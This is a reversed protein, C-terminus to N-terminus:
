WGEKPRSMLERDDWDGFKEIKDPHKQEQSTGNVDAYEIMEVDGVNGPDGGTHGVAWDPLDHGHGHHNPPMESMQSRVPVSAGFGSFTPPAVPPPPYVIERKVSEVLKGILGEKVYVLFYPNAPTAYGYANSEGPKGFIENLNAVISVRDDNYCRWLERQHDYIYVWYHGGSAGGRHFFAAHLRYPHKRMDAFSEKIQQELSAIRTTIADLESQLSQAITDLRSILDPSIDLSDHEDMPLTQLHELVQKATAYLHPLNDTNAQKTELVKRRDNLTSLEAKICWTQLRRSMLDSSAPSDLYRDLFITEPVQVHHNLKIARKAETDWVVRNLNISFVPPLKSISVFASSNDDRVSLDYETDLAAYVDKPEKAVRTIINFFQVSTPPEKGGMVHSTNQGFFMDHIEDVQEGSDDVGTPRMACSFQFLCHAAVETVDQQRAYEELIDISPEVPKRPPVPPPKGPPPAYVIPAKTEEPAAVEESAHEQKALAGAQANIKSPSAPRLPQMNHDDPHLPPVEKTPSLNEKNDLIAQQGEVTPLELVPTSVSGPRSVLTAESSNDKNSAVDQEIKDTAPGQDFQGAFLDDLHVVAPELEKPSQMIADDATGNAQADPMPLPGLVPRDGIHGLSPRDGLITSRRRKEILSHTELTLRALEKDPRIASQPTEVMGKFLLALNEVFKQASYVERKTVERQGVKKRSMNVGTPEMKYQDFNLVIQRLEVMTFLFQLLSNLYCTNGINDLGVPADDTGQSPQPANHQLHGRLLSSDRDRAIADLAKSYYDANGPNESLIFSYQTLILDDEITRNEIQLAQFAEVVGMQTMQHDHAFGSDIWNQLMTSKRHKAILSVAKMAQPELTKNDGVKAGFLATIQDDGVYDDAGLFRLASEYTNM